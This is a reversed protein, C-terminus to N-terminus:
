RSEKLKRLATGIAQVRQYNGASGAPQRAPLDVAAIAQLFPAVAAQYDGQGAGVGEAYRGPGKESAGKTYRAAGARQVGKEFAGRGAAATVGQQWTQRAASANTQWRQGAGSVGQQYDGSAGAARRAWKDGAGGPNRVVAQPM